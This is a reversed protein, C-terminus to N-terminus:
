PQQRPDAKIQESCDNLQQILTHIPSPPARIFQIHLKQPALVNHKHLNFSNLLDIENLAHTIGLM